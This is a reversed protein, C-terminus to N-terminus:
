LVRVLEGAVPLHPFDTALHEHQLNRRQADVKARAAAQAKVNAVKQANYHYVRYTSPNARYAQYRPDFWSKPTQHWVWKGSKYTYGANM